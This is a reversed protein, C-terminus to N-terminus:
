AEGPTQHLFTIGTMILAIVLSWAGSIALLSPAKPPHQVRRRDAARPRDPNQDHSTPFQLKAM